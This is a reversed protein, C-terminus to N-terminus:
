NEWYIGINFMQGPLVPGSKTKFLIPLPTSPLTVYLSEILAKSTILESLFIKDM